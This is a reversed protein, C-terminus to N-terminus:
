QTKALPHSQPNTIYKPIPTPPTPFSEYAKLSEGYVDKALTITNKTLDNVEDKVVAPPMVTKPAPKNTNLVM